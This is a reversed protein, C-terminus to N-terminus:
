SKCCGTRFCRGAQPQISLTQIFSWIEDLRPASSASVSASFGHPLGEGGANFKRGGSRCTREYGYWLRENGGDDNEEAAATYGVSFAYINNNVHAVRKPWSIRAIHRVEAMCGASASAELEHEWERRGTHKLSSTTSQPPNNPMRSRRRSNRIGEM